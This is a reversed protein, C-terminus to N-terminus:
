KSGYKTRFTTSDCLKEHFHQLYICSIISDGGTSLINSTIDGKDAKTNNQVVVVDNVNIYVAPTIIM